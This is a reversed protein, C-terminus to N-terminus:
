GISLMNESFTAANGDNGLVVRIKTTLNLIQVYSWLYSKRFCTNTENSQTDRPEVPLIQRYEGLFMVTIGGMPSQDNRLNRFTCDLAEMGAKNAMNAEDWVKLSAEKLVKAWFSQM